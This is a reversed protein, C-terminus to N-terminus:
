KSFEDCVVGMLDYEFSDTVKVNVISGIKLDDKSNIYIIGDIEPSMEYNRGYYIENEKGDLITEYIKGIKSKNIERSIKQQLMMIEGQREVKIDESIQNKMSYAPTGEERSYKFVGVKDLRANEIFSKLENFNEETEGPFGVILTTRIVINPISKRLNNINEVIKSKRGKRGMAKLIDDSIHQLPIDIYKCVKDNEAMENILETTIEEPYCYLIRIWKINKIESINHLLESLMKKGYLDIGYRSTDQAILIIEKVGQQSLDECEKLISEMKRSRYKGRIKPIICYTCCNDCGEAIRVYATHSTTTIIRDGENINLDSYNFSYVKDNENEIYKKIDENLKDYDNVGLMIDVEPLLHALEEGYRQTLCGTAILIKCNFDDKYESMEIITDISEQKASEIFGCTNVIIIDAQKLDSVVDYEMRLNNLIIESDVRNKDCGLSVLGVRLKNM